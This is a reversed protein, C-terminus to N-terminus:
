PPEAPTWDFADTMPWFSDMFNDPQGAEYLPDFTVAPPSEAFPEGMLSSHRAMIEIGPQVIPCQQMVAENNMDNSTFEHSHVVQSTATPESGQAKGSLVSEPTRLTQVLEHTKTARHQESSSADQFPSTTEEDERPEFSSKRMEEVVSYRSCVERDRIDHGDRSSAGDENDSMEDTAWLMSPSSGQADQILEQIGSRLLKSRPFFKAQEELANGCASLCEILIEKPINGLPPQGLRSIIRASHFACMAMSPDTVTEVGPKQIMQLIRSVSLAHSLCKARCADAYDKSLKALESKPLGERFGPISFRYLDCHAQHWWLHLMVFTTRFPTYARLLFNKQNFQYDTPLSLGFRQLEQDLAAIPQLEQALTHSCNAVALGLRFSRDRLELVRLCYAALGLEAHDFHAELPRIRGTVVPSDMAFSHENCPLQLHIAEIPCSKFELKGSSYLTDTVFISWMLRRRRERVLFPLRPDERNLRLTFALRSLLSMSVLMKQFNWELGYHLAIFVWAEVNSTTPRGTQTYLEAEAEQIWTRAQDLRPVDGPYLCRTAISCLGRIFCQDLEGTSWSHLVTTRHVFSYCPIPYIFEFYADIHKRIEAQTLGLPGLCPSAKTSPREQGAQKSSNSQIQGQSISSGPALERYTPAGPAYRSTHRHHRSQASSQPASLKLDSYHCEIGSRTCRDCAPLSGSCKSKRDRCAVCARRVRRRELRAPIRRSTGDEVMRTDGGALSCEFDLRNCNNCGGATGDCKVKRNRCQFCIDNPRYLQPAQSDALLQNSNLLGQQAHIPDM